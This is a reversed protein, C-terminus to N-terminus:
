RQVIGRHRVARCSDGCGTIDVAAPVPFKERATQRRGDAKERVVPYSVRGRAPCSSFAAAGNRIVFQVKKSLM